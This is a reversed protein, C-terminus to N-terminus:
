VLAINRPNFGELKERLEVEYDYQQATSKMEVEDEDDMIEGSGSVKLKAFQKSILLPIMEGKLVARDRNTEMISLVERKFIYIHTDLFRSYVTMSPHLALEKSRIRLKQRLDQECQLLIIKHARCDDNSTLDLKDLPEVIMIDKVSQEKERRGPVTKPMFHKSDEVVLISLM